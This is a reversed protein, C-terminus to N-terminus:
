ALAFIGIVLGHPNLDIDANGSSLLSRTAQVPSPVPPPQM